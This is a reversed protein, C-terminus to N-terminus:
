VVVSNVACNCDSSNVSGVASVSGTPCASCQGASNMYFNAACTCAGNSAISNTPCSCASIGVSGVLSTADVPCARCSGPGDMYHNVPCICQHVSTSGVGSILGAPCSLCTTGSLYYGELCVCVPSGSGSWCAMHGSYCTYMNGEAILSTSPCPVTSTPV